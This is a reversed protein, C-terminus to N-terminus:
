AVAKQNGVAPQKAAAQQKVTEILRSFEAETDPHAAM